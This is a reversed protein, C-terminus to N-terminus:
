ADPGARRVRSDAGAERHGAARSCGRGRTAIAIGFPWRQPAEAGARPEGCGRISGTHSMPGLHEDVLDSVLDSLPAAAARVAAHQRIQEGSDAALQLDQGATAEM